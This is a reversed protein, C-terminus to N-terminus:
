YSGNEVEGLANDIYEQVQAATMANPTGTPDIWAICQSDAPPEESGIYVENVGGMQLIKQWLYALGNEDLIKQM